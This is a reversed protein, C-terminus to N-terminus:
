RPHVAAQLPQGEAPEAHLRGSLPHFLGLFLDLTFHLSTPDTLASNEAVGITEDIFVYVPM